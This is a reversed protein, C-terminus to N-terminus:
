AGKRRAWAAKIAANRRKVMEPDPNRNRAAIREAQERRKEPTWRASSMKERAAPDVWRQKLRDGQESKFAADNRAATVTERYGPERWASKMKASKAARVEPRKANERSAVAVRERADPNEYARRIAANRKAVLEPDSAFARSRATAEARREPTNWLAKHSRSLKERYRRDDEPDIYDLGEGGATSNTLRWGREQASAILAREIDQWREGLGVEHLIVVTPRFGAADLKRLWRATHHSYDGRRAACIHGNM